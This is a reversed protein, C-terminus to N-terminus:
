RKNRRPINSKDGGGITIVAEREQKLPPLKSENQKSKQRANRREKVEALKGLRIV